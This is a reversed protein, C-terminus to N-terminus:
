VELDQRLEVAADVDVVYEEWQLVQPVLDELLAPEPALLV